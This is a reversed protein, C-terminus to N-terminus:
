MSIPLRSGLGDVRRRGQWVEEALRLAMELADPGDDHAGLPFDRLQNLLLEVGPSGRRFRLRRQSLYPGLRRIRVLKSTHNHIEAPAVGLVGLRHFEAHFETALLEQWQNAEVGLADPRFELYRSVADAVMQPTARRALDADVYLLGQEDVGLMVVASYDGHRADAGKSPDLALTRLTLKAPWADFWLSDGFYSEPWECKEPDVPSGQKEREFSTAGSEVRMTMLAYLDEVEPWLVQAGADMAPRNREYFQRAARSPNELDRDCYIAQWATWLKKNTPAAPLAKFSQSRWGPTRHLELALADRHLATALNVVNTRPTGAKLLTGHFWASSRERRRPSVIHSDNQLDDCIILTPREAGRRRGRICQGTGFAEIVVGSPLQISAARWHSGQGVAHPYAAALRQNELLEAKVNDLHMQAQQRTDSVIWIYPEAGTVASQLAYALTAVTSKASGRPGIVNLKQGRRNAFGDLEAALWRHMESPPKSFHAPLYRRGWELLGVHQLRKHSPCRAFCDRLAAALMGSLGERPSNDVAFDNM